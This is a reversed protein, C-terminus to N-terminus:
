SAIMMGTDKNGTRANHIVAVLLSLIMCLGCITILPMKRPGEIIHIGWAMHTELEPGNASIAAM